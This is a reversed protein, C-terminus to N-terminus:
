CVEVRCTRPIAVLEQEAVLILDLGQPFLDPRHQLYEAIYLPLPAVSILRQEPIGPGSLRLQACTERAGEAVQAVQLILTCATEPYEASGRPFGDLSELEEITCLAFQVDPRLDTLKAGTHFLLNHRVTDDNFSHGLWVAVTQDFLTQAVAFAAPSLSGVPSGSALSQVRGPESMAKLLKRFVGQADHVPHVFGPQLDSQMM